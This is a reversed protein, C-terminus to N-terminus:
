ITFSWLQSPCSIYAFGLSYAVNLNVYRAQRLAGYRALNDEIKKKAILL